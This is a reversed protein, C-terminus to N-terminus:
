FNDFTDTRYDYGFIETAIYYAVDKNTEYKTSTDFTTKQKGNKTFIIKFGKATHGTAHILRSGGYSKSKTAHLKDNIEMNWEPYNENVYEAMQPVSPKNWGFKAHVIKMKM